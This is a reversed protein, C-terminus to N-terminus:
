PGPVALPTHQADYFEEENDSEESDQVTSGNHTMSTSYNEQINEDDLDKWTRRSECDDDIESYADDDCEDVESYDKEDDELDDDDESYDDDDDSCWDGLESECGETQIRLLGRKYMRRAKKTQLNAFYTEQPRESTAMGTNTEIYQVSGDDSVVKRWGRPLPPLPNEKAKVLDLLDFWWPEISHDVPAINWYDIDDISLSTVKSSFAEFDCSFMQSLSTEDWGVNRLSSSYQLETKVFEQVNRFDRVIHQWFKFAITGGALAMATPTYGYGDTIHPNAGRHLLQAAKTHSFDPSTPNFCHCRTSCIYRISFHLATYGCDNNLSHKHRISKQANINVGKDILLDLMPIDAEGLADFALTM